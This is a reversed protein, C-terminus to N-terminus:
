PPQARCHRREISDMWRMELTLLRRLAEETSFFHHRAASEDCECPYAHGTEEWNMNLTLGFFL